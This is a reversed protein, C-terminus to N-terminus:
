PEIRLKEPTTLPTTTLESNISDHIELNDVWHGINETNSYSKLINMASVGGYDTTSGRYDFIKKNDVFVMIKGDNQQSHEYYIGLKFWRNLPVNDTYNVMPVDSHTELKWALSSNNALRFVMLKNSNGSVSNEWLMMWSNTTMSSNFAPIFKIDYQIFIKEFNDSSSAGSSANLSIRQGTYYPPGNTYHKINHMLWARTTRNDPGSLTQIESKIYNKLENQTPVDKREILFQVAEDQKGPITGITSSGSEYSFNQWWYGNVENPASLTVSGEFDTKFLLKAEVSSPISLLYVILFLVSVCLINKINRYYYIEKAFVIESQNM